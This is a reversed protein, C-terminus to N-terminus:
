GKSVRQWVAENMPPLKTLLGMDVSRRWLIDIAKLDSPLLTVPFESFRTFWAKFFEPDTQTEKGVAAFVEDQNALAYEMSARLLRLFEEYLAPQADLKDGYGALVASVMRVGFRQTMDGATRAISVFEGSKQAQFAQAHILTAADVRGSALAAPMAPAPMEVFEIDGGRQAVNFGHVDALAIRILTTGASGVAYIALKKGKLDAASRIPSDRKVWIDSGEGSIHYRLGTGIIRLDLGRERARPVAIAATEIVDYSRAATAQILAAIDLPTSEIRVTPSTVKGNRLAWLAAEHSPDALYGLKLTTVQALARQTHLLPLTVGIGLAGRRTIHTM